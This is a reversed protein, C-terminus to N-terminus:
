TPTASAYSQVAVGITHQTLDHVLVQMRDTPHGASAQPGLIVLDFDLRYAQWINFRHDVTTCPDAPDTDGGSTPTTNWVAGTSGQAVGLQPTGLNVYPSGTIITWNAPYFDFWPEGNDAKGPGAQGIAPACALAGAMAARKLHRRMGTVAGEGDANSVRRLWRSGAM